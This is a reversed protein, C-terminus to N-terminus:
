TLVKGNLHRDKLIDGKILLSIMVTYNHKEQKIKFLYILFGNMYIM